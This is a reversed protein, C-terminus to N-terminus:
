LTCRYYVLTLLCVIHVTKNNFFTDIYLLLVCLFCMYQIYQICLVCKFLCILVFLMFFVLHVANFVSM